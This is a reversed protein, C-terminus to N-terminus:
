GLQGLLGKADAKQEATGEVVVENLIDRAGDEDGMDIYARALDLKTAVEEPDVDSAAADSSGADDGGLATDLSFDLESSADSARKNMGTVELGEGEGPLGDIQNGLDPIGSSASEDDDLGDLDLSFDDETSSGSKSPTVTTEESFDLDFDLDDGDDSSAPQQAAKAEEGMLGTLDLGAFDDEDDDSAIPQEAAQSSTAPETDDGLGLDDFDLDMGDDSTDQSASRQEGDSDSLDESFANVDFDDDEENSPGGGGAALEKEMEMVRKWGNPESRELGLNASEALLQSFGHQDKAAHLVEFLKLRFEHREPDRDVAQRVLEEAQKFRGYAIYVDAEALPDVEGTEEQLAEIDSPVFDSLFSTEDGDELETDESFNGTSSLSDLFSTEETTLGSLQNEESALESEGHDSMLISEPEGGGEDGARRRRMFLFAGAGLLLLGVGGGLYLINDMLTAVMGQEEAVPPPPPPPPPPAPRAPPLEEAPPPVPRPQEVVVPDPPAIPQIPPAIEEVLDPRPQAVPEEVLDPRPQAVPEEVPTPRPEPQPRPEPTAARAAAQTLQEQVQGLQEDKLTLMRQMDRIQEELLDLRSRLQDNERRSAEAAEQAVALEQELRQIRGRAEPSEESPAVIKLEGDPRATPAPTAAPRAPRAVEGAAAPPRHTIQSRYQNRAQIPDIALVESAAPIHLMVGRRINNINGDVFAHANAQQIAIVMQSMESGPYQYRQAVSWLTEQPRVPGHERPGTTAAPPPQGPRPTALTTQQEDARGRMPTVVPGSVAPPPESIGVVPGSHRQGLAAPTAAVQRQETPPDLLVTYERIMRGEPWNVEILFNLFPERVPERSTVRIITSGDGKELPQFNLRTLLHSREVGARQFADPSALQVRVADLTGKRVSRLEIEGQFSEYLASHARIDGLGLAAANFSAAGLALAIALSLKRVM